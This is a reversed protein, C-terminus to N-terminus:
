PQEFEAYLRPLDAILRKVDEPDTGEYYGRIQGVRDVLILKGSHFIGGNVAGTPSGSLLYRDMMIEYVYDEEPTTLFIWNPDTTGLDNKYKTLEEPTDFLPDLSHSLIRFDSRDKMAESVQLLAKSMMPCIDPCRTFFFDAVYMKGAVQLESYPQGTQDVFSFAGIRHTLTDGEPTIQELGVIPFPEAKKQECSSYLPLLLLPLLLGKFFQYDSLQTM